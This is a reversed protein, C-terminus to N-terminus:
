NGPLEYDKGIKLLYIGYPDKMYRLSYGNKYLYGGDNCKVFSTFGYSSYYGHQWYKQNLLENGDFDFEKFFIFGGVDSDDNPDPTPSTIATLFHQKEENYLMSVDNNLLDYCEIKKIGEGLANFLYALKLGTPCDLCNNDSCKVMIVFDNNPLLVIDHMIYENSTIYNTKTYLLNGQIDLKFYAFGFFNGNQNTKSIQQWVTINNDSDKEIMTIDNTKFQENELLAQDLERDFYKEWAIDGKSDILMIKVKNNDSYNSYALVVNSDISAFANKSCIATDDLLVEKQLDGNPSLFMLSIKDLYPKIDLAVYDRNELKVINVILSDKFEKTQYKYGSKDIQLFYSNLKGPANSVTIYYDNEELVNAGSVMDPIFFEWVNKVPQQNNDNESINSSTCSITILLFSILLLVLINNKKFM